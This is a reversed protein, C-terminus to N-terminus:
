KLYFVEKFHISFSTLSHLRLGCGLQTRLLRVEEEELHHSEETDAQRYGKKVHQPRNNSKMGGVM